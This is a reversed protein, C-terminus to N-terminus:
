LATQQQPQPAQTAWQHYIEPMLASPLESEEDLAAQWGHQVLQDFTAHYEAVIAAQRKPEGWADRWRAALDGLYFELRRLEPDNPYGFQDVAHM